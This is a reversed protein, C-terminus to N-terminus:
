ASSQSEGTQAAAAQLAAHAADSRSRLTAWEEESPNRGEAVMGKIQDTLAHLEQSAEEGGEILAAVANLAMVIAAGKGGHAPDGAVAGLSVSVARLFDPIAALTQEFRAAAPHFSMEPAAPGEEVDDNKRKSM